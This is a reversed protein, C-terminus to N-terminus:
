PPTRATCHHPCPAPVGAGTTNTPERPAPDRGLHRAASLNNVLGDEALVLADM